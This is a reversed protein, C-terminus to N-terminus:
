SCMLWAEWSEIWLFNIVMLSKSPWRTVLNKSSKWPTNSSAVDNLKVILSLYNIVKILIFFSMKWSLFKRWIRQILNSTNGVEIRAFGNPVFSIKFEIITVLFAM